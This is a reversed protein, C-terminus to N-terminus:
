NTPPAVPFSNSPKDGLRRARSHEVSKMVDVDKTKSTYSNSSLYLM